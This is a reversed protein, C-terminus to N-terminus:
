QAASAGELPPLAESADPLPAEAAADDQQQMPQAEPPHRQLEVGGPAVIAGEQQRAPDAQGQLPPRGTLEETQASADLAAASAAGGHVTLEAAGDERVPSGDSGAGRGLWIGALVAFLVLAVAALLLLRGRSSRSSPSQM